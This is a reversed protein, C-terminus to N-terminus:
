GVILACSPTMGAEKLTMGFDIGQQFVKRPFTMTFSKPAFGKEQEVAAAVEFLTTEAPFSKILPAGGAPLRLQLRAEAHNAAKPPQAPAVPAAAAPSASGSEGPVPLGLRRAKAAERERARAEETEKIKAKIRAKAAVDEEKERRLKIAEDIQKKKMLEEKM